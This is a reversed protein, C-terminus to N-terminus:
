SSLAPLHITFTSGTGSRSEASIHGAHAKIIAHAISLGLGTGKGVPKTTFFPDFIRSLKEEDIGVGTDSITIRVYTGPSLYPYQPDKKEIAAVGAKLTLTGGQPMADKSNLCVNLMAQELQSADGKVEPLENATDTKIEINKPFTTVLLNHLEAIVRNLRVPADPHEEATRGKALNALERALNSARQASSEIVEIHKLIEGLDPRGGAGAEELRIRVLSAYGLVGVLINNFNHAIGSALLGISELKQEQIIQDILREKETEKELVEFETAIMQGITQLLNIDSESFERQRGFANVIGVVSGQRGLVPFGIYSDAAILELGEAGPFKKYADKEIVVMQKGTRVGECPTDKLSIPVNKQLEGNVYLSFVMATDSDPDVKAIFSNLGLMTGITIVIEDFFDAGRRTVAIHYIHNIWRTKEELSEMMRRINSSIFEFERIDGTYAPKEGKRLPGLITRIPQQITSNLTYVLVVTALLLTIGTIGYAFRVRRILASHEAADRALIIHWDWPEFRTSYVYHKKGELDVAKVENVKVSGLASTFTEPLCCATLINRNKEKIVGKLNNQRMYDEVLGITLGKKIGLSKAHGARGKSIIDNLADDCIHYVDKAREAFTDMIERDAFDSVSRLVFGYLGAGMSLIVIVVPVIVRFALSNIIPYRYERM